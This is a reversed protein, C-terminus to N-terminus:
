RDVRNDIWRDIKNWYFEGSPCGFVEVIRPPAYQGMSCEWSILFCLYSSRPELGAQAFTLLVGDWFVLQVPHSMDIIGGISSTYIPPNCNLALFACSRILFIFWLLLPQLCSDLLLCSRSGSNLGWHWWFLIQVIREWSCAGLIIEVRGSLDVHGWFAMWSPFQQREPEWIGPVYYADYSGTFSYHSVWCRGPQGLLLCLALYSVRAMNRFRRQRLGMTPTWTDLFLAFICYIMWSSNLRNFFDINRPKTVM